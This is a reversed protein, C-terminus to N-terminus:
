EPQIQKQSTKSRNKLFALHELIIDLLVVQEEMKSSAYQEEAFLDDIAEEFPILPLSDGVNFEHKFDDIVQEYNIEDKFTKFRTKLQEEFIGADNSVFKDFLMILIAQRYIDYQNTPMEQNPKTELITKVENSSIRAIPKIQEIQYYYDKDIVCFNVPDFVKIINDKPDQYEIWAHYGAHANKDPNVFKKYSEAEGEVVEANPLINAIWISILSCHTLAFDSSTAIFEMPVGGINWDKLDAIISIYDEVFLKGDKLAQKIQKEEM